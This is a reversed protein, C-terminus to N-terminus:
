HELWGAITSQAPISGALKLTLNKISYIWMGYTSLHEGKSTIIQYIKGLNTEEVNLVISLEDNQRNGRDWIFM